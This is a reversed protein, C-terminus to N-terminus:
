RQKVFHAIGGARRYQGVITDGRIEGTLVEATDSASWGPLFYLTIRGNQATGLVGCLECGPSSFTVRRHTQGSLADPQDSRASPSEVYVSLTLYPAIALEDQSGIVRYNGAVAEAQPAVVHLEEFRIRVLSGFFGFGGSVHNLLGRGSLPDSRTRYWDYFNSDVASVTVAQPFGPIFVHPLLRIDANRLKGTLRVRTSDTFFARPGFPTEIRVYYSRAGAAAPWSISATDRSRDFARPEAVLATAGGPVVTEGKIVEGKTTLVTLRYTGGRELAVGPLQFRYVGRGSGDGNAPYDERALINAGSPTSLTIVAGSEAIGEDTLLPDELDFPPAISQVTGNRTRELLVVQTLASASLLGHTALRAETTAIGVKEIDCASVLLLMGAFATRM